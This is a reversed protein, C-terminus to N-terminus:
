AGGLQEIKQNITTHEALLLEIAQVRLSEAQDIATM